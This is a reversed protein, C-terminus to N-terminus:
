NREIAPFPDVTLAASNGDQADLTANSFHALDSDPPNSSSFFWSFFSSTSSLTISLPPASLSSLLSFILLSALVGLGFGSLVRRRKLSLSSSFLHHDFFFLKRFEM